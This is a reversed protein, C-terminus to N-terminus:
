EGKGTLYEKSTLVKLSNKAEIRTEYAPDDLLPEIHKVVSNDKYDTLAKIAATRVHHRKGESLVEILAEKAEDNNYKRIELALENCKPWHSNLLKQKLVKIEDSM